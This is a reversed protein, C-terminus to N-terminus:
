RCKSWSITSWTFSPACGRGHLKRIFRQALHSVHCRRLRPAAIRKSRRGVPREMENHTSQYPLAWAHLFETPMKPVIHERLIHPEILGRRPCLPSSVLHGTSQKSLGYLYPRSTVLCKSTADALAHSDLRVEAPGVDHETATSYVKGFSLLVSGREHWQM